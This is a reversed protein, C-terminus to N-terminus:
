KRGARRRGAAYNDNGGQLLVFRDDILRFIGDRDPRVTNDVLRGLVPPASASGGVPGVAGGAAFRPRELIAKRLAYVARQGGAAKVEKATLVHEGNSLLAPISDSTGDGAGAIAGGVARKTGGFAKDVAPNNGGTSGKKTYSEKITRQITTLTVTKSSPLSNLQSKVDDIVPKALNLARMITKVEDPTLAFKRQLAMVDDASKVAGPTTIQTVAKTPLGELEASYRGLGAVLLNYGNRAKDVSLAAGSAIKGLDRTALGAKETGAIMPNLWDGFSKALGGLGASSDAMKDTVEAYYEGKDGYRAMETALRGLDIGLEKAYQGVNSKQLRKELDGVAGGPGGKAGASRSFASFIDSGTDLAFFAGATAAFGKLSGGLTSINENAKKSKSGSQEAARGFGLLSGSATDTLGPLGGMRNSLTRAGGALILAQQAAAPLKNFADVFPKVIDAAVTLADGAATAASEVAPLASRGLDVLSKALPAVEEAFDVAATAGDHAWKEFDGGQAVDSMRGAVDQIVPALGKGIQIKATEVAGSLQEMAGATGSNAAEALKQAQSSDNTAKMYKRLGSEGEATIANIARQADAGFITNVARSRDEDNLGKFAQRTRDAIEAADVLNGNSDTYSLGLAKQAKAAADTQPVLRTLMTRLSTGADSGKIGQNSLLALYATTDQISLGATHASTGAQSLAQSIDSVDSSSANAAGALAAVADGTRSAGIQFAGMANVVTGAADGLELGGASALTLTDALAGGQIQATTLGGKALELMANGADQASFVTDAGLKMALDDLDKLASKPAGTAVAVQAMTKSYAAELQVSDKILKAVGLAATSAAAMKALSGFSSSTKNTRKELGALGSQAKRLGNMLGSVEAKIKVTLDRTV